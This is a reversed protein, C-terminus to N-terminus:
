SKHPLLRAKHFMTAVYETVIAMQVPAIVAKVLM